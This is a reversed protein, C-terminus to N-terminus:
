MVRMRMVVGRVVGRMMRMVVIVDGGGEDDDDSNSAAHHETESRHTRCECQPEGQAM